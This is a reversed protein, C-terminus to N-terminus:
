YRALITRWNGAYQPDFRSNPPTRDFPNWEDFSPVEAGMPTTWLSLAILGDGNVANLVTREPLRYTQGRIKKGGKQVTRVVFIQEPFLGPEMVYDITETETNWRLLSDGETPIEPKGHTHVDNRFDVVLLDAARIGDSYRSCTRQFDFVQMLLVVSVGMVVFMITMTAVLELLTFGSKKM